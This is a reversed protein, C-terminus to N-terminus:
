RRHYTREIWTIIALQLHARASWQGSGSQNIWPIQIGTTPGSTRSNLATIKLFRMPTTFRSSIPAASDDLDPQRTVASM